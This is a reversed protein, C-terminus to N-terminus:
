GPLAIRNLIAATVPRKSDPFIMSHLLAQCPGANLFDASTRAQAESDFALQYVTDDFVCSPLVRFAPTAYQAAVAVKWPAFTYEGVGFIAFDGRSRYVRSARRAFAERHQALYSATRPRDSPILLWRRPTDRGGAIDAGKFLPYIDEPDADTAGPSELELVRQCDHKVGSRWLRQPSPALLHAHSDYAEADAVLAGGRLAMSGCRADGREGWELVLWVAAAAAGFWRRADVPTMSARALPLGRSWATALLRRAVGAKLIMAITGRRAGMADFLREIMWESIDFNSKGTLADYGTFRGNNSKPPVNEGRQAANTAWPPNGIVLLPEPLGALTAPWDTSFFDATLVRTARPSGLSAAYHADADLAVAREISPFRDLAAYLFAGLGCSPEVLSRPEIALTACLERALAPPTQYDGRIKRTM